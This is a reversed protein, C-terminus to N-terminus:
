ERSQMPETAQDIRQLIAARAARYANQDRFLRSRWNAGM